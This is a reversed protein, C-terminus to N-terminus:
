NENRVYLAWCKDSMELIVVLYHDPNFIEVTLTLVKVVLTMALEDM